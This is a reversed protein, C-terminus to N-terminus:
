RDFDTEEEIDSWALVVATADDLSGRRSAMDVLTGPVSEPTTSSIVDRMVPSDLVGTIGDTCVLIRDGPKATGSSHDIEILEAVGVARTLVRGLSPAVEEPAEAALRHDRTLTVLQTFQRSYWYARSDGVHCVSFDFGDAVVATLTTGMGRWECRSQSARLVTENAYATADRLLEGMGGSSTDRIGQELHDRLAELAMASAVEGALHGGMGDAVAGLILPSGEGVPGVLYSDENDADNRSVSSMTAGWAGPIERGRM